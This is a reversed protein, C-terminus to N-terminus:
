ERCLLYPVYALRLFILHVATNRIRIRSGTDKQGRSGPDLSPCFTLIRIRSSCGPDYKRSSLFWKRPYFYKFKQIRIRSPFIRIRSPFFEYGPHFFNPDPIRTLFLKSEPYVDRIRMVSPASFTLPLSFLSGCFLDVSSGVVCFDILSFFGPRTTWVKPLPPM